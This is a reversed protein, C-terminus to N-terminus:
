HRWLRQSEITRGRGEEFARSINQPILNANNGSGDDRWELGNEQRYSVIDDETVGYEKALMADAAAVMGVDPM